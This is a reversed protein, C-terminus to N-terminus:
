EHPATAGQSLTVSGNDTHLTFRGAGAGITLMRSMSGDENGTLPAQLRIHGDNTSVAVVANSEPAFAVTVRGDNTALVGDTVRMASARISGSSTRADLHPANVRDFILRGDNTSAIISDAVVDSLEIRGDTAHLDLSGRHDAVRILGDSSRAALATRLGTITMSGGGGVEVRADLPVTIRVTHSSHGFLAFVNGHPGSSAVRVGDVTAEALMKTFHGRVYGGASVDDIVRVENGPVATIELDVPNTNIVVHPAPGTPFRKDFGSTAGPAAPGSMSTAFPHAHWGFHSHPPNAVPPQGPSAGPGAIAKVAMGALALETVVLAAVLTSRSVM